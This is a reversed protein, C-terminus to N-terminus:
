QPQEMRDFQALQYALKKALEPSVNGGMRKARDVAMAMEPHQQVLADGYKALQRALQMPRGVAQGAAYTAEGVLRPSTAGLAAIYAPNTLAKAGLTLASGIGQLGRPAPSSLAQGALQPFMETAGQAELERGLEM